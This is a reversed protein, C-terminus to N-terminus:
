LHKIIATFPYLNTVYDAYFFFLLIRLIFPLIKEIIDLLVKLFLIGRFFSHFLTYSLLDILHWVMYSKSCSYLIKFAYVINKWIPVKIDSKVAVWGM